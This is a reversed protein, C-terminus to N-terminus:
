SASPMVLVANYDGCIAIKQGQQIATLLLEVAQTLDPFEDLPSPLQQTEPDLYLWAQEPTQIGRNILVQAILPSLQTVTAM